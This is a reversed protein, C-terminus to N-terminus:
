HFFTSPSSDLSIEKSLSPSDGEDSAKNDVKSENTSGKSNLMEPNNKM